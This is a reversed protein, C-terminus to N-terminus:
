LWASFNVNFSDFVNSHRSCNNITTPNHKAFIFHNPHRNSLLCATKLTKNNAQLEGIIKILAGM